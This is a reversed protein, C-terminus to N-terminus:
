SRNRFRGFRGISPTLSRRGTSTHTRDNSEELKKQEAQYEHLREAKALEEREVDSLKKRDEELDADRVVAAKIADVLAAIVMECADFVDDRGGKPFASFEKLFEAFGTAQSMVVDNGLYEGKFLVTGNNLWTQVADFRQEKSGIPKLEEIPISGKPDTRTAAILNQTTGQQPGGTELLVKQISLGRASWVKYQDRLFDLHKPAAIHGFTFDLIYIIGTEVHKGATAHGFYNATQDESTAPDGAQVGVLEDLPPRSAETYYQLWSMDYRVGKLGSPDNRYQSNYMPRPMVRKKSMLWTWPREEPWLALGEGLEADYIRVTM